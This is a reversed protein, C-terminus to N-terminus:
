YGNREGQDCGGLQEKPANLASSQPIDRVVTIILLISKHGM